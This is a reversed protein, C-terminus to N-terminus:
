WMKGWSDTEMLFIWFDKPLPANSGNLSGPVRCLRIHLWLRFGGAARLGYCGDSLGPFTLCWRQHIDCLGLGESGRRATFFFGAKLIWSIMEGLTSTQWRWVRESGKETKWEITLSCMLPVKAATTAAPLKLGIQSYPNMGPCRLRIALWWHKLMHLHLWSMHFSSISNIVIAWPWASAFNITCYKANGFVLVRWASGGARWSRMFIFKSRWLACMTVLPKMLWNLSLLSYLAQLAVRRKNEERWSSVGWYRTITGRTNVRSWFRAISPHKSQSNFCIWENLFM